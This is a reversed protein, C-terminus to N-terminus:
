IERKSFMLKEYVVGYAIFIYPFTWILGCGLPLVLFPYDTFLSPAAFFGIGVPLISIFLFALTIVNFGFLRWVNSQTASFSMKVANIPGNDTTFIIGKALYMRLILYLFVIYALVYLIISVLSVANHANPTDNLLSPIVALIVVPLLVISEVLYLGIMRLIMNIKFVRWMMGWRVTGTIARQIGLYILGWSAIFGFIFNAIQLPIDLIIIGFYKFLADMFGIAFGVVFLTGFVAWISAKAGGVKSWTQKVSEVVPLRYLNVLM